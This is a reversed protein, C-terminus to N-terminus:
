KEMEKLECRAIKIGLIYEIILGCVILLIFGWLIVGFIGIKDFMSDPTYDGNFKGSILFILGSFLIAIIFIVIGCLILTPGIDNITVYGKKEKDFTKCLWYNITM